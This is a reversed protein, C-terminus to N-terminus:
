EAAEEPLPFEFTFTTGRGVVSDLEITGGIVAVLDRVLTLGLGTGEHRRTVFVDGQRFKEFVAQHLAPDIGPGTDRVSIRLRHAASSCHLMVEGKDTFKVANSMLNNLIKIVIARDIEVTAPVDAAIDLNVHLGKLMAAARHISAVDKLLERLDVPEPHLELYGAEVKALDLIDNLLALLHQGSSQIQSACELVFEDPARSSLLEAFGLIGHLPTRLEHSMNALFESKMRNASEAQQQLARTAAMDEERRRSLRLLPVLTALIVLIAAGAMLGILLASQKWNELYLDETITVNVVMPYNSLRRAAVLRLPADSPPSARPMHTEVVGSDKKQTEILDFAAGGRFSSGMQSDVFPYRALLTFDQRYLALSAGRGLAIRQFSDSFYNSSLGVIVLGIFNGQRDNLRRSIYFTWAGTGRNRVPSSIFVGANPNGLQERFYDRDALNIPPPPYARSFNIVDGNSAVITAVDIQPLSGTRDRLMQFVEPTAMRERLQAPTQVDFSAVREAIGDLVLYASKMTQNTQEALAVSINDLHVTWEATENKRLVWISLAAFIAMVVALLLGGMLTLVTISRGSWRIKNL